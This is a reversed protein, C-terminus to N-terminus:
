EYHYICFFLTFISHIYRFFFGVKHKLLSASRGHEYPSEPKRLVVGEGGHTMIIQMYQQM